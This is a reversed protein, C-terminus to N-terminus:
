RDPDQNASTSVRLTPLDVHTVRKEEAETLTTILSLTRVTVKKEEVILTKILVSVFVYRPYFM